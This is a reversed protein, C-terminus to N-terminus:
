TITVTITGIDSGSDSSSLPGTLTLAFSQTLTPDNTSKGIAPDFMYNSPSLTGEIGEVLPTYQLNCQVYANSHNTITVLNSGSAYSWEGSTGAGYQHTSPNWKGGSSMYTFTMSGWSIDVSYVTTDDGTGEYTATVPISAKGNLDSVTTNNTAWATVSLSLALLISLCIISLRKM